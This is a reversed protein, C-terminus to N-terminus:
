GYLSRMSEVVRDLYVLSQEGTKNLVEATVYGHYDMRKLADSVSKHYNLFPYGPLTMGPNGTHTHRIYHSNNFIEDIHENSEIVSRIDLQIFINRLGSGDLLAVGEMYSNFYDCFNKSLPEINFFLGTAVADIDLLVSLFIRDLEVKGCGHPCRSKPSGFVLNGCELERALECYRKIYATLEGRIEAGAFLELEPRTFTLSHLSVLKLQYTVLEKKLWSIEGSGVDLPEEWFCNLALEVGSVGREALAAFFSSLQNKGKEWLINSIAIKM